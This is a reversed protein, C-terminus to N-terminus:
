ARHEAMFRLVRALAFLRRAKNARKVAGFSASDTGGALHRQLYRFSDIQRTLTEIDVLDGEIEALLYVPGTVLAVAPIRQDYLPEGEGLHVLPGPKVPVVEGKSAGRWAARVLKALEPTTAYLLEPELTGDPQFRGSAPDIRLHKAGLHEIALGAVATLGPHHPSWLEPHADLWATTAQGHKTVAPIRLHGATYVFVITREHPSAAADRALALLGVHGNEEVANGGDSHTVVLVAEHAHAGTGPSVAWLTDMTGASSRQANLTLTATDGRKAATLVRLRQSQPVWVAPLGQYGRTFPLYQGRAAEDAIGSWIAIVGVAGAERAKSLDTGAFEAGIVPNAISDFPYEKEWKDLLLSAPVDVNQVQIVAIKGAASKWNKRHGGQVLVLPATVGAEDTEGSYPWVSSLPVDADEIRLSNDVTSADWRDFTHRDRNVDYGLAILQSAVDEILAHHAENGSVRPGLEALRRIQANYDTM